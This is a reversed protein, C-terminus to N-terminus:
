SVASAPSRVGGETSKRPFVCPISGRCGWPRRTAHGGLTAAGHFLTRLMADGTVAEYVSRPRSRNVREGGQGDRPPCRLADGAPGCPIVAGGHRPWVLGAGSRAHASEHTPNGWLCVRLVSLNSGLANSGNRLCSRGGRWPCIPRLFSLAFVRLPRPALM